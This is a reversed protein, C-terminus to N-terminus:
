MSTVCFFSPLFIHVITQWIKNEQRGASIGSTESADVPVGHPFFLGFALHYLHLKQM